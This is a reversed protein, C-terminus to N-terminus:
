DKEIVDLFGAREAQEGHFTCVFVERSLDIVVKRSALRVCRDGGVKAYCHVTTQDHSFNAPRGTVVSRM